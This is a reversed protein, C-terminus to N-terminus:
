TNFHRSSSYLVVYGKVTYIPVEAIENKRCVLTINSPYADLAVAAEKVSSYEKITILKKTLVVVRKKEGNKYVEKYKLSIDNLTRM